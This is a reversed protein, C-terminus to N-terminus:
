LFGNSNWFPQNSLEGVNANGRLEALKKEIYREKEKEAALIDAESRFGKFNLLFFLIWFAFFCLIFFSNAIFHKHKIRAAHLAALTKKLFLRSEHEVLGSEM